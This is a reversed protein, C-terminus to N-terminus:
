KVRKRGQAIYSLMYPTRVDMQQDPAWTFDEEIVTVKPHVVGVGDAGPLLSQTLLQM